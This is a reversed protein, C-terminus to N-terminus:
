KRFLNENRNSGISSRQIVSDHINISDEIHLNDIKFISKSAHLEIDKLRMRGAEDWMECEELLKAADEYRLAKEFNRAQEIKREVQEDHTHQYFPSGQTSVTAPSPEVLSSTTPSPEGPTSLLSPQQKKTQYYENWCGAERAVAKIKKVGARQIMWAPLIFILASLVIEWVQTAQPLNDGDGYIFFISFFLVWFASWFITIYSFIKLGSSYTQRLGYKVDKFIGKTLLAQQVHFDPYDREGSKTKVKDQWYYQIIWVPGCIIAVLSLTNFIATPVESSGRSIEEAIYHIGTVVFLVTWIIDLVTFAKLGSSHRQKLGYKIAKHM